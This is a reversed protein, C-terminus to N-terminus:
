KTDNSTMYVLNTLLIRKYQNFVIEKEPYKEWDLINYTWLGYINGLYVEEPLMTSIHKTRFMGYKDPGLNETENVYEGIEKHINFLDILTKANNIKIIANTLAKQKVSLRKKELKINRQKKYTIYILRIVLYIIVIILFTIIQKLEIM